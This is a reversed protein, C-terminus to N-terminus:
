RPESPLQVQTAWFDSISHILADFADLQIPKVLYANAQLQYSMAIDAPEETTTLIVTPITRLSQDEKISVLVERGAM